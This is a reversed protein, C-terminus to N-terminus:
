LKRLRREKTSSTNWFLVTAMSVKIGACEAERHLQEATVHRPQEGFLLKALALRQRTPRLGFDRLKSAQQIGQATQM